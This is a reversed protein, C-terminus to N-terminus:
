PKFCKNKRQNDEEIQNRGRQIIESGENIRRIPQM